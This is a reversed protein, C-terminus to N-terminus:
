HLAGRSPASAPPNLARALSEPQFPLERLEHVPLGQPDIEVIRRGTKDAVLRNGGPIDLVASLAGIRLPGKADFLLMSQPARGAAPRRDLIRGSPWGLTIQENGARIYLSLRDPAPKLHKDFFALMARDAQEQDDGKFGHGARDITELHEEVGAARLRAHLDVSQQHPVNLDFTGHISEVPASSPTVWQIPSARLHGTRAWPLEGGTLPPLASAANRSGGYATTMDSRGYLNVVCAVASSYEQNPGDGEFEPVGRTVGLFLAITGGASVGIAGIRDPDISYKGANARLFRVAAKADYVPAPFQYVPTLRYSASAAVYGAAALKRATGLFGQRTGGSFGGGHILVVAPHPGPTSPRVLDMGLTVGDMEAYPVDKDHIPDQAWQMAACVLFLAVLRM